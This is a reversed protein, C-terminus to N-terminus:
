AHATELTDINGRVVRFTVAVVFPNRVWEGSGHLMDWLAAYMERATARSLWPFDKIPHEVGPVWFGKVPDAVIGEALADAESIDHLREVKVGEVILTLRSAWRPMHISPRLRLKYDAAAEKTYGSRDDAAYAVEQRNPGTPNVPSDTWAPPAIWCAERVYLRDGEEFRVPVKRPGVPSNFFWSDPEDGAYHVGTYRAEAPLDKVVLRRTQTKRGALLARVMPASFIIPRDM